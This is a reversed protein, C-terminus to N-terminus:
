GAPKDGVTPLRRREHRAGLDRPRPVIRLLTEAHPSPRATSRRSAPTSPDLRPPTEERRLAVTVDYSEGVRSRRSIILLEAVRAGAGVDEGACFDRVRISCDDARRDLRGPYALPVSKATPSVSRAAIAAAREAISACVRFPRATACAPEAAM